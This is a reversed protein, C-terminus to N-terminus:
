HNPWANLAPTLPPNLATVPMKAELLPSVLPIQGSAVGPLPPESHLFPNMRDGGKHGQSTRQDVM